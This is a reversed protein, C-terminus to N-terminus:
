ATYAVQMIYLIGLLDFLCCANIHILQNFIYLSFSSLENIHLLLISIDIWPTFFYITEVWVRLRQCERLFPLCMVCILAM